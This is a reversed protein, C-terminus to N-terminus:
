CDGGVGVRMLRWGRAGPSATKPCLPMRRNSCTLFWPFHLCLAKQSTLPQPSNRLAGWHWGCFYVWSFPMCTCTSAFIGGCVYARGCVCLHTCMCPSGAHARICLDVAHACVHEQVCLCVCAPHPAGAGSSALIYVYMRSRASGHGAQPKQHLELSGSHPPLPEPMEGTIARHSGTTQLPPIRFCNPIRRVQIFM